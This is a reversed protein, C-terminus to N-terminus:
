DRGARHRGSSETVPRGRLGRLVDDLEASRGLVATLVLVAGAALSALVVAVLSGLFGQGLSNSVLVLVLWAALGAFVSMVLFRISARLTRATDLRGFRRHLLVEGGIAGVVYSLSTAVLLGAVLNHDALV